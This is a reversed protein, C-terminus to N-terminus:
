RSKDVTPYTTPATPATAPVPIRMANGFPEPRESPLKATNADGVWSISLPLNQVIHLPAFMPRHIVVGHRAKLRKAVPECGFPVDAVHPVGLPESCVGECVASSPTQESYNVICPSFQSPM